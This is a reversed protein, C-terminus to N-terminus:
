FAADVGPTAFDIRANRLILGLFAASGRPKRAALKDCRLSVVVHDVKSNTDTLCGRCGLHLWVQVIGTVIGLYFFKQKSQQVYIGLGTKIGLRAEHAQV